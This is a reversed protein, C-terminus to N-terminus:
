LPPHRCVIADEIPHQGGAPIEAADRFLNAAIPPIEDDAIVDRPDIDEGNEPGEVAPRWEDSKEQLPRQDRKRNDTLRTPSQLKREHPAIRRLIEALMGVFATPIELSRTAGALSIAVNRHGDQSKQLARTVRFFLSRILFRGITM